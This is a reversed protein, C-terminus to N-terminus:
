PRVRIPDPAPAHTSLHDRIRDAVYAADHRAGDIFTANRRHQFRLGIAFLGPAPTVGRHHHLRGDPDLVPVRLWPYWPRYGTAWVVTTIGARRLDLRRPGPPATVAPVPPPGPSRGPLHTEAYRDIRGLVRRLRADATALTAPLDGAFSVRAADIDVLRGALRVGREQLVALDLREHGGALQMSPERQGLRQDPLDDLTRDLAGTRDLWWLIDRDRYRRPLRNHRGVALVVQRGARALEGALQVGSASAGVVLVGGGALRDPNRYGAPTVQSLDPALRAAAAPRLASAYYGAAIVVCAALWEGQDTEVLYGGAARRVATVTTRERVPAAFSGAYAELHAVFQASTLFGDPDPGQYRFGPLRTMWNPTLLRFSDWRASRWREGLRGRELVVHDVGRDTLCRSLALGAHGAGIIVTETTHV